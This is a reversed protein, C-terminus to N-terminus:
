IHLEMNKFVVVAGSNQLRTRECFQRAASESPMEIATLVYRKADCSEFAYDGFETCAPLNVEGGDAIHTERFAAEGVSVCKPLHISEASVYGLGGGDVTTCEPLNFKIGDVAGTSSEFASEGIRKCTPLDVSGLKQWSMFFGRPVETLDGTTMVVQGLDDPNEPTGGWPDNKNYCLVIKGSGNGSGAKCGKKYGEKFGDFHGDDYGNNYGM